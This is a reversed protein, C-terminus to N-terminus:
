VRRRALAIESRAGWGGGIAIVAEAWRILAMNWAEGVSTAIPLMSFSNATHADAAPLIGVTLGAAARAGRCVSEMVGGPGGCFIVAAARALEHGVAEPLAVHAINAQSTGCVAIRLPTLLPRISEPYTPSM